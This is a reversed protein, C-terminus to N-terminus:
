LFGKLKCLREFEEATYQKNRWICDPKGSPTPMFFVSSLIFLDCDDCSIGRILEEGCMPCKIPQTM